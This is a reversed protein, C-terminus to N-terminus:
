VVSKRDTYIHTDQNYKLFKVESLEQQIYLIQLYLLQLHEQKLVRNPAPQVLLRQMPTARRICYEGSNVGIGKLLADPEIRMQGVGAETNAIYLAGTVTGDKLSEATAAWLVHPGQTILLDSALLFPLHVQTSDQGGQNYQVRMCSLHQRLNEIAM